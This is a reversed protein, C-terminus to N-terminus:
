DVDYQLSCLCCSVLVVLYGGEGAALETLANEAAPDWQFGIPQSKFPNHRARSGDYHLGGASREAAKIAAIEKERESM